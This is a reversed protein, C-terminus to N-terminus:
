VVRRLAMAYGLHLAEHTICFALAEDISSLTIGYSTEYPTYTEFKGAEFDAFIADINHQALDLFADVTEQTVAGEPQTGKRYPAMMEEALTFPQNGLKYCLNQPSVVSHAFNWFINNNFGAPVENLQALTCSEILRIFNQRTQQYLQFMKPNNSINPINPFNM